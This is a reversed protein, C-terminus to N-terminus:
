RRARVLPHRQGQRDVGQRPRVRRGSGDRAGHRAPRHFRDTPGHRLETKINTYSAGGGKHVILAGMAPDNLNQGEIVCDSIDLGGQQNSPGDCLIARSGGRATLYLHKVTSKSLNEFRVLYKGGNNGQWGYNLADPVLWNDSGRLSYQTDQVAVNTWVGAWTCLTMSFADGPKGFCHRLGYFALDAFHGAYCTGASYPHHYFSSVNGSKFCIGSVTVDYTTSTGTLWFGSGSINLNVVCQPLSGNTGAIEPNQWGTNPGLIRLGSFTTRPKTFTHARAGLRIPRKPNSAQALIWAADLKAEDSSGPMADLLIANEPNTTPSGSGIRNALNILELNQKDDEVKDASELQNTLDSLAVIDSSAEVANAKVIAELATLTDQLAALEARAEEDEDDDPLTELAEVRATLPGLDVPAPEPVTLDDLRTHARAAEDAVQQLEDPTPVQVPM